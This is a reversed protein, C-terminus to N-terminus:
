GGSYQIVPLGLQRQACHSAEIARRAFETYEPAFETETPSDWYQNRDYYLLAMYQTM